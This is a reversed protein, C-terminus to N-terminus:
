LCLLYFICIMEEKVDRGYTEVDRYRSVLVTVYVGCM